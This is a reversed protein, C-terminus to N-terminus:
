RLTRVQITSLLLFEVRQPCVEQPVVEASSTIVVNQTLQTSISLLTNSLITLKKKLSTKVCYMMASATGVTNKSRLLLIPAAQTVVVM